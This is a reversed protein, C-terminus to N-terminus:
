LDTSTRNTGNEIYVRFRNRKNRIRHDLGELARREEVFSSPIQPQQTVWPWNSWVSWSESLYLHLKRVQDEQRREQVVTGEKFFLLSKHM